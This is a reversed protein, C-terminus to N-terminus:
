DRLGPHTRVRADAAESFKQLLAEYRDLRDAWDSTPLLDLTQFFEMLRELHPQQQDESADSLLVLWAQYAYGIIWFTAERHRGADIMERTGDVYYPRLHGRFKFDYHVPQRKIRTALEFAEDFYSLFRETDERTLTATGILALAQEHLDARGQAELLEGSRMFCRRLTLPRANSLSTLGMMLATGVYFHMLVAPLDGAALAKRGAALRKGVLQKRSDCRAQVWRRRSYEAAVTDHLRGLAGTPDALIVGAAVNDAHEPASLIVDASRFPEDGLIACELIVGEHVLELRDDKMASPDTTLMVVDVDRWSELPTEPPLHTLSGALLAGHFGPIRTSEEAVWERARQIAQGVNM